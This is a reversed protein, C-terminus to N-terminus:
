QAGRFQDQDKLPAMARPGLTDTIPSLHQPVPPRLCHRTLSPPLPVVHADSSLVHSIGGFKTQPRCTDPSIARVGGRLNEDDDKNYDNEERMPGFWTGGNQAWCSSGAVKPAEQVGCCSWTKYTIGRCM